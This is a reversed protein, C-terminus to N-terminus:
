RKGKPKRPLERVAVTAVRLGKRIEAICSKVYDQAKSKTMKVAGIAITGDAWVPVWATTPKAMKWKRPKM